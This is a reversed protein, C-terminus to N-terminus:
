DSDDNVRRNVHDKDFSACGILKTYLRDKLTCYCTLEHTFEWNSIKEIDGPEGHKCNICMPTRLRM